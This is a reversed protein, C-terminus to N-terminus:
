IDVTEPGYMTGSITTVKHGKFDYGKVSYTTGSQFIGIEPNPNKTLDVHTTATIVNPKNIVINASKVNISILRLHLSFTGPTGTPEPGGSGVVSAAYVLTNSGFITVLGVLLTLMSIGLQLRLSRRTAQKM